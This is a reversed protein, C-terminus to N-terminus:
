ARAAPNGDPYDLSYAGPFIFVVPVPGWNYQGSWNPGFIYGGDDILDCEAGNSYDFGITQHDFEQGGLFQYSESPAAFQTSEDKVALTGFAIASTDTAITTSVTGNPASADAGLCPVSDSADTYRQWDVRVLSSDSARVAKTVTLTLVIKYGNQVTWNLLFTRPRRLGPAPAVTSQRLL